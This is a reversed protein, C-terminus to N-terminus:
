KLFPWKHWNHQAFQSSKHANLLCVTAKKLKQFNLYIGSIESNMGPFKNKLQPFVTTIWTWQGHPHRRTPRNPTQRWQCHVRFVIHHMCLTHACLSMYGFKQFDNRCTLKWSIQEIYCQTICVRLNENIEGKVIIRCMKLLWSFICSM